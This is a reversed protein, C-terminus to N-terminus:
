LVRKDLIFDVIVHIFVQIKQNADVSLTALEKYTQIRQAYLSRALSEDQLLPRKAHEKASLRNLIVEFDADIYVILSNEAITSHIPLGGGTAIVQGKKQTIKDICKQELIRFCEEGKEKFIDNISANQEVEIVSDVDVFDKHLYRALTKGVSTKGSGMFGILVINEYVM